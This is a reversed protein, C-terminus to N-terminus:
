SLSGFVDDDSTSAHNHKIKTHDADVTDGANYVGGGVGDGDSGGTGADGGRAVNHEVRVRTLTLTSLADVYIGAGYGDGGNGSSGAAGGVTRNHDVSSHTVTLTAGLLTALGGGWADGGDGGPGGPGGLVTNHDITCNNVAASAGNGFGNFVDLGGGWALGGNQGTGGAGAIVANDEITCGRISNATGSSLHIAGGFAENPGNVTPTPNGSSQNGDGGIAQNHDFTCDSVVLEAAPGIPGGSTIAGGVGLGPRVLGVSDNGGIAQNHLFTSGTVTVTSTNNIAGGGGTADTTGSCGSGGHAVNGAFLSDTIDAAASDLNVIAGGSGSGASTGSGTAALAQNHLFASRFVTLTATGLNALGGGLAAGPRGIPSANPDGVAQNDSLVDGSLTLNGHNLIGGGVGAIVPAGGGARGDTIRMGAITVTVGDSVDFVRSADNGSITLQNAGLGEIDLSKAIALEGSTLTITQGSLSSDFQITDGSSAARITDRLSGAGSDLANLVTLTSLVTRDQLLELHAPFARRRAITPRNGGAHHRRGDRGTGHKRMSLWNTFM